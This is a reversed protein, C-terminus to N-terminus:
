QVWPARLVKAGRTAAPVVSKSPPGEPRSYTVIYQATLADAVTKTMMELASPLQATLRIGGTHETVADLLADRDPAVTGASSAVSIAWVSAGSTLVEDAVRQPPVRSSEGSGRDVTLIVRRPGPRKRIDKAADIMTELMVANIRQNPVIRTISKALDEPKSTFSRLLVGAGAFEFIAVETAPVAAQVTRMFTSLATRIDRTPEIVGPASKTTDVLISISMPASTLEAGTVERQVGDEFVLFDKATLDRLAHNDKDLVTVLLGREVPAAPAGGPVTSTAAAPMVVVTGTAAVFAAVAIRTGQFTM